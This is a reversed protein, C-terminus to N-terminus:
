IMDVELSLYSIMIITFQRKQNQSKLNQKIISLFYGHRIMVLGSQIIERGRLGVKHPTDESYGGMILRFLLSHPGKISVIKMGHNRQTNISVERIFEIWGWSNETLASCLSHKMSAWKSWLRPPILHFRNHKLRMINTRLKFGSDRTKKNHRDKKNKASYNM